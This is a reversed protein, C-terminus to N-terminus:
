CPMIKFVPLVRPQHWLTVQWEHKSPTILTLVSSTLVNDLVSGAQTQKRRIPADEDKREHVHLVCMM